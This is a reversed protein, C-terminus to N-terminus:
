FENLRSFDPKWRALPFSGTWAAHALRVIKSAETRMQREFDAITEVLYGEVGEGRRTASRLHEVLLLVSYLATNAGLGGRHTVVHVADGLYTKRPNPKWEPLEPFANASCLRHIATRTKDQNVILTRIRDPIGKSYKLAIDAARDGSVVSEDPDLSRFGDASSLVWQFYGKEERRLPRQFRCAEVFLDLSGPDGMFIPGAHFDPDLQELLTPTIPTVGYVSAVDVRTPELLDGLAERVVKSRLGDTGLMLSGEVSKSGDSFLAIIGKPTITSHAFRKGYHIFPEIGTLLITRLQQRDVPLRSIMSKQIVPDALDIGLDLLSLLTDVPPPLSTTNLPDESKGAVASAGAENERWLTSGVKEGSTTYKKIGPVWTASTDKVEQYLDSPILSKLSHLGLLNLRLKYGQGRGDADSDREYVEFPIGEQKLAQALALGSIGGGIILIPQIQGTSM